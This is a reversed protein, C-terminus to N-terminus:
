ITLEHMMFLSERVTEMEDIMDGIEMNEDASIMDTLVSDASAVLAISKELDVQPEDGGAAEDDSTTSDWCATFLFLALLIAVFGKLHKM